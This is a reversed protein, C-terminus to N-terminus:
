PIPRAGRQRSAWTTLDTRGSLGLKRYVRTLNAEATKPSIFLEEGIQKVTRGTAALLAVRRETETLENGSATRLGVRALDLRTREAFGAAGLRSFVALAAELAEKAAAKERFRRHVQGLSLMARAHEVVLPTDAFLETSRRAHHVASRREGKAALLLGRLREVGAHLSTRDLREAIEAMMAVYAEAQDIAGTALMAEVHDGRMRCYGPERLNMEEGLLHWRDLHALARHADGRAMACLGLLGLGSREAWQDSGEVGSRRLREALAEARDVEGRYVDIVALNSNAQLEQDSQGTRQAAELHRQAYDEAADWNGSWLELQPLHSLVFPRSGEDDRSELLALLMQRSEDLEDTIKLWTALGAYASDAAFVPLDRELEIAREFAARDLGFGVMLRAGARAVLASALVQRPVPTVEALALAAAAHESAALFDDYTVRALISRVEIRELDDSCHELAAAAWSKASRGIGVSYEITARVLCERVKSAPSLGEPRLAALEGLLARAREAEGSQFTLHAASVLRGGLAPHQPPTLQVALEAFEAAHDIAGRGALTGAEVALQDALTEDSSVAALARHRTAAVSDEVVEGLRQHAARRAPTTSRDLVAAAFLPHAFALHHRSSRVLGLREARDLEAALDLREALAATPHAALAFVTLADLLEADCEDVRAAVLDLLRRPLRLEGDAPNTRALERAFLPNGHSWELITRLQRPSLHRGVDGLFETISQDDLPGLRLVADSDITPGPEDSRRAALVLVGHAPLRRLAFALAPASATDLWQVDDVLVLLPQQRALSALVAASAAGVIRADLQVGGALPRRLLAQGLAEGLMPELGALEAATVTAFLDGLAAYALRAEAASPRCALIRLGRERALEGGADLLASKGTGAPAEILVSSSAKGADDLHGALMALEDARGFLRM